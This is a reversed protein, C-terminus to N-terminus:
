LSEPGRDLGSIRGTRGSIRPNPNIKATEV